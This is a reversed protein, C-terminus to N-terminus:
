NVRVPEKQLTLQINELAKMNEEANKNDVKKNGRIKRMANLVTNTDVGHRKLLDKIFSNDLKTM